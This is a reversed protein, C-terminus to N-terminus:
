DAKLAPEAAIPATPPVAPAKPEAAKVPKAPEPAPPQSFDEATKFGDTEASAQDEASEVILTTLRQGWVEEDGGAKYLMKPFESM